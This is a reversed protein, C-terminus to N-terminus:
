DPVSRDPQEVRDAPDDFVPIRLRRFTVILGALWGLVGSCIGCFLGLTDLRALSQPHNLFWLLLMGLLTVRLVYSGVSANKVQRPDADAVLVQVGQGIAFYALALAAGLLAGVLGPVQRTIIGLGVGLLLGVHWGALGGLLLRTANQRTRSVRPSM